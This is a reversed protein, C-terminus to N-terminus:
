EDLSHVEFGTYVDGAFAYLAPRREQAEFSRFREANLAALSDSIHMLEALKPRSLKAAAAALAAAEEDFRPATADLPPLPRKFDLTKAPSIVALM